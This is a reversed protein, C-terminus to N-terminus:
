PTMHRDVVPFIEKVFNKLLQTTQDEDTTVPAILRVFAGDTRHRFISDMVLWIKQMYESSIIRGRSHFWYLVVQRKEAKGLLMRALTVPTKKNPIQVDTTDSELINWGAGPLCNKPSHITDGQKQSEYYGLYFNIHIGDTRYFNAMVYDEVGLIAYERQDIKIPNAKWENIVMPFQDLPIRPPVPQNHNVFLTILFAALLIGVLFFTRLLNM